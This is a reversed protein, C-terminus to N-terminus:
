NKHFKSGNNLYSDSSGIKSCPNCNPSLNMNTIYTKNKAFEYLDTDIKSEFAVNKPIGYDGLFISFDLAESAKVNTSAAKSVNM